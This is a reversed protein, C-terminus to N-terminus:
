SEATQNILAANQSRSASLALVGALAILLAGLPLNQKYLM